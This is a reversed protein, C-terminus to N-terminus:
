LRFDYFKFDPLDSFFFWWYICICYSEKQTYMYLKLHMKPADWSNQTSSCSENNRTVCEMPLSSSAWYCRSAADLAWPLLAITPGLFGLKRHRARVTVVGQVFIPCQRQIKNWVSDCNHDQSNRSLLNHCSQFAAYITVFAILSLLSKRESPLHGHSLYNWKWVTKWILM